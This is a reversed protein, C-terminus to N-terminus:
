GNGCSKVMRIITGSDPSSSCQVQDMLHHILILGFGGESGRTVVVSEAM